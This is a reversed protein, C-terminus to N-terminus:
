ELFQLFPLVNKIVISAGSTVCIEKRARKRQGRTTRVGERERVGGENDLLNAKWLALELLTTAEKLLIKHEAKCHNLQRIVSGMWQQIARTQYLAHSNFLIQNIRNIEGTMENRWSDLHLSAVTKHIGGALEVSTLDFCLNFAIAEIMDDKLPLTIRQLNKCTHFAGEEVIELEEPLELDTLELCNYFAWKGITRVSPMTITILETCNYFAEEEITHLKDGFEVDTLDTAAFANAKIIRIGLLKISGSLIECGVFAEEEIIEIGDHLEVSILHRRHYFARRTIIKVSIHIRARRVREPVEQDGGMYVFIEDDEEQAEMM